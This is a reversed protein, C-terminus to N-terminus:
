ILIYFFSYIVNYQEFDSCIIVIFLVNGRDKVKYFFSKEVKKNYGKDIEQIEFFDNMDQFVQFLLNIELNNFFFIIEKVRIFYM